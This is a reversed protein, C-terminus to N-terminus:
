PELVGETKGEVSIVVEKVSPFQKLTNEIQSRIASMRCSGGSPWNNKNFDVRALNDEIVINRLTVGSPINSVFGEEKEAETPGALLLDLATRAPTITKPVTRTVPYTKECENTKPDKATSGWYLTITATEKVIENKFLLPITVKEIESGDMASHTFVELVGKTANSKKYFVLASFPGFVGVDSAQATDFGEGLVAGGEDKVRYNFTNEFVRAEGTLVFPNTVTIGAEPTYVIINPVRSLIITEAIFVNEGQWLGSVTVPFGRRLTKLTFSNQGEDRFILNPNSLDVSVLVREEEGNKEVSLIGARENYLFVTGSFTGPTGEGEWFRAFLAVVVISLIFFLPIIFRKKM